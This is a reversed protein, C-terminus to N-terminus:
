SVDIAPIKAPNLGGQVPVLFEETWKDYLGEEGYAAIAENLIETNATKGKPLLLAMCSTSTVEESPTLQVSVEFDAYQPNEIYPVMDPISGAVAEVGGTLLSPFMEQIGNFQRPEAIPKVNNTVISGQVSGLTIGWQLARLDELTEVKTDKHTMVVTINDYFCDTFEAVEQREPTPSPGFAFDFDSVNGSTTASFNRIVVQVNSLGLDKALREVMSAGFGTGYDESDRGEFYGATPLRWVAVTLTDDKLPEFGPFAVGSAAETPEEAPEEAPSSCGALILTAVAIAAAAVLGHRRVTSTRM